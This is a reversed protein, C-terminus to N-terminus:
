VFAIVTVALCIAGATELAQTRVDWMGLANFAPLVPIALQVRGM